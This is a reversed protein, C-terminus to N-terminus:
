RLAMYRVELAAYESSLNHFSKNRLSKIDKFKNKIAESNPSELAELRTTEYAQLLDAYINIEFNYRHLTDKFIQDNLLIAKMREKTAKISEASNHSNLLKVREISLAFHDFNDSDFAAQQIHRYPEITGPTDRVKEPTPYAVAQLSAIGLILLIAPVTTICKM